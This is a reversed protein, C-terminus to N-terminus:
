NVPETAGLIGRRGEQPVAPVVAGVSWGRGLLPLPALVGRDVGRFDGGGGAGGGVAGGWGWGGSGGGAGGVTRGWGGAPGGRGGAPLGVGVVGGLPEVVEGGVSPEVVGVLVVAVEVAREVGGVSPWGGVGRHDGGRRRTGGEGGAPSGGVRGVRPGSGGMGGHHEGPGGRRARVGSEVGRRGWPGWAM